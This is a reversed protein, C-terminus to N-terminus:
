PLTLGRPREGSMGHIRYIFSIREDFYWGVNSNNHIAITTPGLTLTQRPDLAMAASDGAHPPDGLFTGPEVDFLEREIAQRALVPLAGLAFEFEQHVQELLVHDLLPGRDHLLVNADAHDAPTAVNGLGYLAFHM